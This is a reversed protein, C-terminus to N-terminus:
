FTSRKRVFARWADIPVRLCRRATKNGFGSIDLAGLAGEEILDYIHDVACNLKQACEEPRLTFRGPFDLAAPIAVEGPKVAVPKLPAPTPLIGMLCIWGRATLWFDVEGLFVVLLFGASDRSM